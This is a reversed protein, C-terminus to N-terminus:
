PTVLISSARPDGYTFLKHGTPRASDWMAQFTVDVVIKGADVERYPRGPREFHGRYFWLTRTPAAPVWAGAGANAAADWGWSGSPWDLESVLVLATEAVPQQKSHGGHASGLPSITAWLAPDGIIMPFTVRPNSGRLRRSHIAPGTQEPYAAESYEDNWEVTADGEKAGLVSLGGAIFPDGILVFANGLEALAAELNPYTVPM